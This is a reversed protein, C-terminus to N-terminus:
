GRKCQRLREPRNLKKKLAKIEAFHSSGYAKCVKDLSKELTQAAPNAFLIQKYNNLEEKNNALSSTMEVMQGLAEITSPFLFLGQECILAFQNLQSLIYTKEIKGFRKEWFELLKDIDINYHLSQGKFKKLQSNDELTNLKKNAKIKQGNKEAYIYGANFLKELQEQITPKSKELNYAIQSLTTNGRSISLIIEGYAPEREIEVM